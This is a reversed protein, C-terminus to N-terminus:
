KAEVGVGAAVAGAEKAETAWPATKCAGAGQNRGKKKNAKSSRRKASSRMRLEDEDDREQSLGHGQAGGAEEAETARLVLHLTSEKQINYNTLTRRHRGARSCSGAQLPSNGKYCNEEQLNDPQLHQNLKNISYLFIIPITRPYPHNSRYPGLASM